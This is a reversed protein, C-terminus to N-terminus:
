TKHDQINAKEQALLLKKNEEYLQKIEPLETVM